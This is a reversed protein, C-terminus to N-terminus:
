PPGGPTRAHERRAWLQELHQHAAALTLQYDGHTLHGAGAFEWPDCDSESGDAGDATDTIDHHQRWLARIQRLHGLTTSYRRSKTTVHGRYGLTHLWRVM